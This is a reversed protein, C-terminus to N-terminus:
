RAAIGYVLKKEKTNNNAQIVEQSGNIPVPIDNRTGFLKIKTSPRPFGLLASRLCHDVPIVCSLIWNFLKSDIELQFYLNWIASANSHIIQFLFGFFLTSPALLLSDAATSHWYDVVLRSYALM